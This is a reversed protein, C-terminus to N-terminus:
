ADNEDGRRRKFGGEVWRAIKDALANLAFRSGETAGPASNVELVHPVGDEGILVDVAGFDMGLAEVARSAIDVVARDVQESPVLRTTWGLRYSRGFQRVKKYRRRWEPHVLVKEYSALHRRRYIWVRFEGRSPVVPSLFDWGELLWQAAERANLCIRIDKGGTHRLKRALVPFRITNPPVPGHGGQLM